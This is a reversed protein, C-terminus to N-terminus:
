TFSFIFSRYYRCLILSIGRDLVQIMTIFQCQNIACNNSNALAQFLIEPM